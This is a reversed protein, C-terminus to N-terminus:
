PPPSAADRRPGPDRRCRRAPGSWSSSLAQIDAQISGHNTTTMNRRFGIAIVDSAQYSGSLSASFTFQYVGSRPIRMSGPPQAVCPDNSRCFLNDRDISEGLFSPHFVVGSLGENSDDWAQVVYRASFVKGTVALSGNIADGDNRVYVDSGAVAARAESDGYRSHNLGNGNSLAGMAAVAEAGAFRDHNTANSNSRTGMAAVAEAGTFRDHRLPNGNTLGGMSDVAESSTFRDHNLPNSHAVHGMAASAQAPSFALGCEWQGGLSSWTAQEGDACSLADVSGQAPGGVWNGDSDIVQAGDIFLERADVVGGDLNTATEAIVSYPTSLVELLPQMLTGSDVSLGLFLPTVEFLSADLPNSNQGGLVLSYYGEELDVLFDQSWLPTSCNTDPCLSVGVTHAGTVGEGADDVIRGQQALQMPVASALVPMLLALLGLLCSVRLSAGHSHHHGSALSCSSRFSLGSPLGQEPNLRSFFTSTVTNM